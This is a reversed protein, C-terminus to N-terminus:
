HTADVAVVDDIVLVVVDADGDRGLAAQDHRHQAIGVLQAEALDLLRHDPIRCRARSPWSVSSSSVPPVNVIVLPPTNPENSDVGMRLMGCLAIRPM